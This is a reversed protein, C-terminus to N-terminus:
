KRGGFLDDDSSKKTKTATKTTSKTSKTETKATRTADSKTSSKTASSKTASSKTTDTKAATARSADTKAADTKTKTDATKTDATKTDATKSDATKTETPTPVTPTAVTPTAATPTAVTTTPVTPATPATPKATTDVTIAKVETPQDAATPAAVHMTGDGRTRSSAILFGGVGAAVCLGAVAAIVKGRGGQAARRGVQGAGASLSSGNLSGSTHNWSKPTLAPPPTLGMGANMGALQPYAPQSSRVSLIRIAREASQQARSRISAYPALMRALEGVNQIRNQPDKELCRM